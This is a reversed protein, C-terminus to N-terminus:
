TAAPFRKDGTQHLPQGRSHLIGLLGQRLLVLVGVLGALLAAVPLQEASVLAALAAVLSACAGLGLAGRAGLGAGHGAGVAAAFALARLGAHGASLGAGPVAHM